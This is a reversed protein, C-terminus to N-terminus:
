TGLAPRMPSYITQDARGQLHEASRAPLGPTASSCPRSWQRPQLPWTRPRVEVRRWACPSHPTARMADPTFTEIQGVFDVAFSSVQEGHEGLQAAALATLVSSDLGGSVLVCRPVDAV